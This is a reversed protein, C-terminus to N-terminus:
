FYLRGKTFSTLVDKVVISLVKSVYVFSFIDFIIKGTNHRGKNELM